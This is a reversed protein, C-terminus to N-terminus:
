ICGQTANPNGCGRLVLPLWDPRSFLRSSLKWTRAFSGRPVSEWRVIELFELQHRSRIPCLFHKTNNHGIPSCMEQTRKTHEYVVAITEIVAQRAWAGFFHVCDPFKWNSIFDGDSKLISDARFSFVSKWFYLSSSVVPIWAQMSWAKTFILSNLIGRCSVVVFVDCSSHVWMKETEITIIGVWKSQWICAFEEPASNRDVMDLNMFLIFKTMEQKRGECFTFNPM